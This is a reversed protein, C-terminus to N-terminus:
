LRHPAKDNNGTQCHERREGPQKIDEAMRFDRLQRVQQVQLEARLALERGILQAEEEGDEHEHLEPVEEVGAGIGGATRGQMKGMAALKQQNQGDHGYPLYKYHRESAAHEADRGQAQGVPEDDDGGGADDEPEALQQACQFGPLLILGRGGPTRGQRAGYPM